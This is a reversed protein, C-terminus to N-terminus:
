PEVLDYVAVRGPVDLKYEYIDWDGIDQPPAKERIFAEAKDMTSFAGHVIQDRGFLAELVVFVDM